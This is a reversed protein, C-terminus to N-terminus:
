FPLDLATESSNSLIQFHRKSLRIKGTYFIDKMIQLAEEPKYHERVMALSPAVSKVLWTVVDTIKKLKKAVTLRLKKTSQLWNLWWAKITCRTKNSDDLNIVAFCNNLISFFLEGIDMGSVLHKIVEVARSNKLEIEARIWHGPLGMQAAKDYFRPFIQSQRSKSLNITKGIPLLDADHYTLDETLKGRKFRTRVQHANIAEQLLDLKLSGDVNDHALDLRSFNVNYKLCETLLNLWPNENYQSEYLRCGDGSFNVHVGMNHAGDFLVTIGGFAVAKKYGSAGQPRIVFNDPLLGLREIAIYPDSIDLFTIRLWDIIIRNELPLVLVQSVPLSPKTIQAGM